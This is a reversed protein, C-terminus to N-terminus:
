FIFSFYFGVIIIFANSFVSIIKTDDKKGLEYTIFRSTSTSLTNEIYSMLAVVGGVVNFLGFDSVGLSKLVIRSTLLTIALVFIMRIYLFLTNKVILKKDM